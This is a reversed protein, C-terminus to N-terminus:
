DSSRPLHLLYLYDVMLVTKLIKVSQAMSVVPNAFSVGQLSLMFLYNGSCGCGEPPLGTHIGSQM